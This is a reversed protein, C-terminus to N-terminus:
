EFDETNLYKLYYKKVQPEFWELMEMIADEHARAVDRMSSASSQVYESLDGGLSLQQAVWLAMVKLNDTNRLSERDLYSDGQPYHTGVMAGLMDDYGIREINKM